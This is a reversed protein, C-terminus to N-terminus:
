SSTNRRLGGGGGKRQIASPRRAREQQLDIRGYNDPAAGTTDLDVISGTLREFASADFGLVIVLVFFLGRGGARSESHRLLSPIQASLSVAEPWRAAKLNNHRCLVFLCDYEPKEDNKAWEPQM